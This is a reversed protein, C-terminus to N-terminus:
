KGICFRSFIAGLMEESGILGMIRELPEAAARLNEANIELPATKLDRLTLALRKQSEELLNRHRERLFVADESENQFQQKAFGSIKELLENLGQGNKTSVSLPEKSQPNLDVKSLVRWIKEASLSSDPQQAKGDAPQLWLVLDAKEARARARQIGEEEIKNQAARLGATDILTVPFGQLDLRVELIDRTTGPEDTVIAVDRKALANLLSSKGANPPGALVVTLGERLIEASRAGTLQASIEKQLEQLMQAALDLASEPIDEDASFDILAEILARAQVLESRWRTYLARSTGITERLATRRQMETDASLLDSLGEIETLDMKGNLFARRTFEGPEAPRCNEFSSLTELIVAIVAPSGHCHIELVDEGTFSAPAAFYVLVAEDLLEGQRDRLKSLTAYRAELDLGSLNKSLVFAQPGSVRMVAVGARGAGSSLAFITDAM